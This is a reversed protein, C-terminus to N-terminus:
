KDETHSTFLTLYEIVRVEIRDFSKFIPSQIVELIKGDPLNYVSTRKEM